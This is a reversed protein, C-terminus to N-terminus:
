STADDALSRLFSWAFIGTSHGDNWRILLGWNGVLEADVAALPQPAHLGPYVAQGQERLGRCQACPCRLRLTEIAFTSHTGDPWDLRLHHERDLEIATPPDTEPIELEM